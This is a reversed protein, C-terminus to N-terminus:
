HTENNVDEDGRIFELISKSRMRSKRSQRTMVLGEKKACVPGYGLQISKESRLPRKCRKCNNM